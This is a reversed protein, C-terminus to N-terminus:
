DRKRGEIFEGYLVLMMSMYNRQRLSLKIDPAIEKLLIPIRIFDEKVHLKIALKPRYTNITKKSGLIAEYEAGNIDMKIFSIKSPQISEMVSDITDVQIEINSDSHVSIKNDINEETPMFSLTCKEKWAGIKLLNVNALNLNSVTEQLKNFNSDFPEMSIIQEYKDGVISCFDRISDGDFGGVDLLVENNTFEFIKKSFYLHDLEVLPEIFSLDTNIKSNIAALYTDQSVNDDFIQYAKEFSSKNDEVFKYDMFESPVNLFDPVDIVFPTNIGLDRLRDIARPYNTMGIVINYDSAINDAYDEVPLVKLGQYHSETIYERDVFFYEIDINLAKFYKILVYSYVGAGYIGNKKSDSKLLLILEQQNNGNNEVKNIFSM